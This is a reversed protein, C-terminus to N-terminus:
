WWTLKNCLDRGWKAKFTTMNCMNTYRQGESNLMIGLHWCGLVLSADRLAKEKATHLPRFAYEQKNGRMLNTIRVRGKAGRLRWGLVDGESRYHQLGGYVQTLKPLGGGGKGSPPRGLGAAGGHTIANAQPPPSCKLWQVPLQTYCWNEGGAM